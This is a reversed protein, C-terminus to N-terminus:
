EPWATYLFLLPRRDLGNFPFKGARFPSGASEAYAGSGNGLLLSIGGGDGAGNVRGNPHLPEATRPHSDKALRNM